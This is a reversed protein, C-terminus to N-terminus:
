AIRKYVLQVADFLLVSEKGISHLNEVSCQILIMRPLFRKLVSFRGKMELTVIDVVRCKMGNSIQIRQGKRLFLCVKVYNIFFKFNLLFIAITKM